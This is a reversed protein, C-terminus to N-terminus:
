IFRKYKVLVNTIYYALRFKESGQQYGPLGPVSNRLEIKKLLKRSNSSLVRISCCLASAVWAM